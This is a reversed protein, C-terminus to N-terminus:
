MMSTGQPKEDRRLCHSVRSCTVYRGSQLKLTSKLHQSLVCGKDLGAASTACLALTCVCLSHKYLRSRIGLRVSRSEWLNTLIYTNRSRCV